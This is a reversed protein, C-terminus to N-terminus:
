MPNEISVRNQLIPHAISFIPAFGSWPFKSWFEHIAAPSASGVRLVGVATRSRGPAYGHDDGDNRLTQSAISVDRVFFDSSKTGGTHSKL